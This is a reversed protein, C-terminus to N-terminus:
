LKQWGLHIGISYFGVCKAYLGIFTLFDFYSFEFVVFLWCIKLHLRLNSATTKSASYGKCGYKCKFIFANDKEEQFHFFDLYPEFLTPLKEMKQPCFKPREASSKFFLSSVSARKQFDRPKSNQDWGIVIMSGNASRTILRARSLLKAVRKPKASLSPCTM